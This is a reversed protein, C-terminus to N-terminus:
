YRLNHIYLPIPHFLSSYVIPKYVSIRMMLDEMDFLHDDWKELSHKKISNLLVTTHALHKEYSVLNNQFM